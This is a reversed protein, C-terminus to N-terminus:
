RATPNGDSSGTMARDIDGPSVEALRESSPICAVSITAYHLVGFAVSGLRGLGSRHDTGVVILDTGESAAQALIHDALRGLGRLARFSIKGEGPVDGVRRALDRELLRELEPDAEGFRRPASGPGYREEADYRYYAQLFTVDCPGAQRLRKVWAIPGGSAASDDVGCLIRLAVGERAWTEFPAANRTVLVPVASRHAVQESTGALRWLPGGAGGQAAVVLLAAMRKEASAVLIESARGRRLERKVGGPVSGALRATEAALLAQNHGEVVEQTAADYRDIPSEIAHVLCLSEGLRVALVSATRVAPDLPNDLSTGCIITM